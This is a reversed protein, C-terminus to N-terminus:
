DAAQCSGQRVTWSPPGPYEVGHLVSPVPLRTARSHSLLTRHYRKAVVKGRPGVNDLLWAISAFRVSHDQRLASTCQGTQHMRPPLSRHRCDDRVSLRGRDLLYLWRYQHEKKGVERHM